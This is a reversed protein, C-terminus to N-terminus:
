VVPLKVVILLLFKISNRKLVSNNTFKLTKMLIKFKKVEENPNLKSLFYIRRDIDTGSCLVSTTHIYSKNSNNLAPKFLRCTPARILRM